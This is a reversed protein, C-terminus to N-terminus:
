ERKFKLRETVALEDCRNNHENEAHGRVWVFEVAHTKLLPLLSQWLDPNKVEGGKRKWGKKM